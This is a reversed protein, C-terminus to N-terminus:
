CRRRTTAPPAFATPRCGAPRACWCVPPWRVCRRSRATRATVERPLVGAPQEGRLPRDTLAVVPAEAEGPPAADRALDCLVVDPTDTVLMHGAAQLMAALGQRRVPDGARLLVRLGSREHRAPRAGITVTVLHVEGARLLKLTAPQGIREPALAAALGRSRGTRRGDVELIIDGPLVGAQEAPAGPALGVVMMGADRGAAERLREPVLVHQLGVGLWGRAIRGDTLLPDLVREITAAPIALARRRPGSTSMGILRGGLTLVPGGEDAGLRADLRLLAEIRGGAESHWEPGTAHVMGLRGTPAGRSDAGVILALSGARPSAATAPLAADCGRRWGFCPSTPAPIAAPWVRRFRRATTSLRSIPAEPLVQESTVVVDDRWLIGSRDRRGTRIAVVFRSAAAAPRGSSRFVTRTTDTTMVTLELAPAAAGARRPAAPPMPRIVPAVGAAHGPHARSQEAGMQPAGSPCQMGSSAM